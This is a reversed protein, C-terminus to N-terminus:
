HDVWRVEIFQGDLGCSTRRSEELRAKNVQEPDLTGGRIDYLGQERSDTGRFDYTARDCTSEQRIRDKEPDCM